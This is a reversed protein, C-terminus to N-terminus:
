YYFLFVWKNSGMYRVSTAVPSVWRWITAWRRDQVKTLERCERLGWRGLFHIFGVGWLNRHASFLRCTARTRSWGRQYGLDMGPAHACAVRVTAAPLVGRGWVTCNLALTGIKFRRQSVWPTGETHGTNPELSLINSWVWDRGEPPMMRIEAEPARTTSRAVWRM